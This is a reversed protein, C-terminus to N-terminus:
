FNHFYNLYGTKNWVQPWLQWGQPGHLMHYPKPSPGFRQALGFVCCSRWAIKQLGPRCYSWEILSQFRLSPWFTWPSVCAELCSRSYCCGFLRPATKATTSLKMSLCDLPVNINPVDLFWFLIHSRIVIITGTRMFIIVIRVIVIKHMCVSKRKPPKQTQEYQAYSWLDVVSMVVDLKYSNRLVIIVLSLSKKQISLKKNVKAFFSTNLHSTHVCKDEKSIWPCEEDDKAARPGQFKCKRGKKLRM